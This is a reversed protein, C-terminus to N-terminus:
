GFSDWNVEVFSYIHEESNFLYQDSCWTWRWSCPRAFSDAYAKLENNFANDDLQGGTYMAYVKREYPHNLKYDYVKRALTAYDGACVGLDSYYLYNEDATWGVDAASYWNNFDHGREYLEDAFNFYVYNWPMGDWEKDDWTCDLFYWRGNVKIANWIHNVNVWGDQWTANGGVQERVEFDAMTALAYFLDAYGQCNAKGDFFAGLATWERMPRTTVKEPTYYTVRDCVYDHIYKERELDSNSVLYADNAIDMGYSYLQKEESTLFSTDGTKYAYAVRRGPYYVPEIHIDVTKDANKKASFEGCAIGGQYFFVDRLESESMTYAECWDMKFDISDALQEEQQNIYDAPEAMTEFMIADADVPFALVAGMILTAAFAGKVKNKM